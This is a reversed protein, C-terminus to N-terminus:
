FVINPSFFSVFLVASTVRGFFMGSISRTRGFKRVFHTTGMGVVVIWLRLAGDAQFHKRVFNASKELWKKLHSCESQRVKLYEYPM